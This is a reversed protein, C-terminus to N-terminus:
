SKRRLKPPPSLPSWYIVHKLVRPTWSATWVDGERFALDYVDHGNERSFTLVEIGENPTSERVSLWMV